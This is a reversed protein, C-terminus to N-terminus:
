SRSRHGRRGPPDVAIEDDPEDPPEPVEVTPDFHIPEPMPVPRPEVPSTAEPEGQVTSGAVKIQNHAGGSKLTHPKDEGIM